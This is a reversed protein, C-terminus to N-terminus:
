ATLAPEHAMPRTIAEEIADCFEKMQERSMDARMMMRLGAKGRPVIPFFIASVYFGRALIRQSAEIAAEAEGVEVFRIPLGNGADKSALRSDFYAINEQLRGQLDAVESTLHLKATALASGMGPVSFQQSWGTPGNAFDFLERIRASGALIVGGIAGFSKALSGSIITRDGLAGFAPRMYGHGRPAYASISHSDDIYLYLGYTNQLRVIDHIPAVGGTSYAGDCVYVVKEHNKCLEELAVMDNHDITVVETEDGCSAKMITMSFHCRKDFVVVPKKGETLHGSAYLPLVTASAVFCSPTLYAECEFLQSMADEAESLLAPAIRTRSVSHNLVGEREIADIAGRLIAPHRNLGLYSCSVMNTFAHGDLILQGNDGKTTRVQVLGHEAGARWSKEGLAIVKEMNAFKGM